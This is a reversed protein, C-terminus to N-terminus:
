WHVRDLKTRLLSLFVVDILSTLEECAYCIIMGINNLLFQITNWENQCCNINESTIVVISINVGKSLLQYTWENQCCNIHESTKFVISIEVRKSLLQYKWENQCCSINESTKVVISIKVRKSL